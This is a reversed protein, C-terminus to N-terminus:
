RKGSSRYLSSYFQNDGMKIEGVKEYQCASKKSKLLHWSQWKCSGDWSGYWLLNFSVWCLGLQNELSPVAQQHLSNGWNVKVPWRCLNWEDEAEGGKFGDRFHVLSSSLCKKWLSFASPWCTHSFISLMVLWWLFALWCWLSNYGWM